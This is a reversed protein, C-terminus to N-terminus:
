HKILGHADVFSNTVVHNFSVTSTDSMIINNSFMETKHMPNLQMSGAKLSFM